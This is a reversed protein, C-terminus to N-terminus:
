RRIAVENKSLSHGSAPTSSTAECSTVPPNQVPKCVMLRVEAASLSGSVSSIRCMPVPSAGPYGAAGSHRRLKPRTSCSSIWSSITQLSPSEADVALETAAWHLVDDVGVGQSQIVRCVRQDAPVQSATEGPQVRQPHQEPPAVDVILEYM